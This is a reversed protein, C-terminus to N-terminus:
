GFFLTLSLPAISGQSNGMVMLMLPLCALATVVGSTLLAKETLRWKAEHARSKRILTCWTHVSLLVVVILLVGCIIAKPRQWSLRDDIKSQILSPMQTRGSQLWTNFVQQLKETESGAQPTGLMGIAGSFEQRPHLVNNVNAAIILAIGLGLAVSFLGFSFYTKKEFSWQRNNAKPTRKFRRWFFLSLMMLALLFFGGVLVLVFHYETNASILRNLAPNSTTGSQILKYLTTQLSDNVNIAGLTQFGIKLIPL